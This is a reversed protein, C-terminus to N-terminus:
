GDRCSSIDTAHLVAVGRRKPLSQQGPEAGKRPAGANGKLAQALTQHKLAQHRPKENHGRAAPGKSPGEREVEAEPELGACGFVGVKDTRVINLGRGVVENRRLRAVQSIMENKRHPTDLFAIGALGLRGDAKVDGCLNRPRDEVLGRNVDPESVGGLPLGLGDRRVQQSESANFGCPNRNDRQLHLDRLLHM